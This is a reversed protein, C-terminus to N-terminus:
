QPKGIPPPTRLDAPQPQWRGTNLAFIPGHCTALEEGDSCASLGWLAILLLVKM